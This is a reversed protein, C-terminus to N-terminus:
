RSLISGLDYKEQCRIPEKTSHTRLSGFQTAVSYLSDTMLRAQRRNGGHGAPYMDENDLIISPSQYTM